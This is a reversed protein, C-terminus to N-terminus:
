WLRSCARSCALAAAAACCGSPSPRVDGLLSSPPPPHAVVQLVALTRRERHAGQMAWCGGALAEPAVPGPQPRSANLELQPARLGSRGSVAASCPLPGIAQSRCCPRGQASSASSGARLCAGVCQQPPARAPRPLCPRALGAGLAAARQPPLAPPLRGQHRRVGLGLHLAPHGAREAGGAGAAWATRPGMSIRLMAIQEGGKPM